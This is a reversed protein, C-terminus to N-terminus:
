KEADGLPQPCSPFDFPLFCFAFPLFPLPFSFSSLALPQPSLAPFFAFPLLRYPFAFLLPCFAFIASPLYPFAFPL